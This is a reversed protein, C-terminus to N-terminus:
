VSFVTSFSLSVTASIGWHRSVSFRVNTKLAKCFTLRNGVEIMSLSTVLIADVKVSCQEESLHLYCLVSRNSNVLDNTLM